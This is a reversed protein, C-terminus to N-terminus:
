CLERCGCRTGVNRGMAFNSISYGALTRLRSPRLWVRGMTRGFGAGGMKSLDSGFRTFESAELTCHLCRCFAGRKEVEVIRLSCSDAGSLRAPGALSRVPRPRRSSGLGSPGPIPRPQRLSLGRPLPAHSGLSHRVSLEVCAM